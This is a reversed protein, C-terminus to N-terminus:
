PFLLSLEWVTSNNQPTFIAFTICTACYREHSLYISFSFVHYKGMCILERNKGKDRFYNTM